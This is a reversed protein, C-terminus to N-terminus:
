WRRRLQAGIRRERLVERRAQPTVVPTDAPLHDRLAALKVKKATPVPTSSCQFWRGIFTGHPYGATDLWNPVGPDQGCIVARFRGDSDVRAQHGNLSSQRQVYETANWLVDNLQVNWYRRQEPLETDLILAEDDALQYVGEWYTQVELGSPFQTIRATNVLDAKEMTAKQYSLWMKSLNYPYDGLVQRLKSDIYDVSPRPKLAQESLCEIAFRADRERGWDYSRQRIVVNDAEPHLYRWDGAWGAPRETSFIVEFRGDADLTLEDADYYNFTPGSKEKMGMKDRTTTFTMLRTTGREGVIRYVGDGRLPAYYYTDDPNPQLLFVSNLFPTWDPHEPTSQFHLFYGLTLNMALQKYFEARVQESQPDPTLAQLEGARKLLEVYEDWQLLKRGTAQDM